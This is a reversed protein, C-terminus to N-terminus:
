ALSRYTKETATPLVSEQDDLWRLLESISTSGYFRPGALWRFSEARLHPLHSRSAHFAAQEAAKLQEDYRLRFQALRCRSLHVRYLAVHDGSDACAALPPRQPPRPRGSPAARATFPTSSTSSSRTTRRAPRLLGSRASWSTGRRRSIRVCSRAVAPTRWADGRRQESSMTASSGWSTAIALRRSSTTAWSSTSSSSTPAVSRLGTPLAPTCSRACRRRFPTTPPTASSCIVSASPTRGRCSRSTPGSSSRACS